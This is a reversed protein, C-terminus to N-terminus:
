SYDGQRIKELEKETLPKMGHALRLDALEEILEEPESGMREARKRASFEEAKWKREAAQKRAEEKEAPTQRKTRRFWAMAKQVIEQFITFFLERDPPYDFKSSREPEHRLYEELATRETDSVPRALGQFARSAALRERVNLTGVDWGPRLSQVWRVFASFGPPEEGAEWKLCSLDPLSPRPSFGGPLTGNEGFRPIRGGGGKNRNFEIDGETQAKRQAEKAVNGSCFDGEAMVDTASGNSKKNGNQQEKGERSKAMRRASEARAKATEGNHRTFNSFQLAGDEGMMWGVSMLARAFGKCFTLRDIYACTIGVCDGDVTQQDAWAWLRILKGVVTDTDKMRLLRAMAVVEQKDPLIVEIKIWPVPM